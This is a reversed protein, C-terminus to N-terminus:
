RRLNELAPISLNRGKEKTRQFNFLKVSSRPQGLAKPMLRGFQVAPDSERVGSWLNKRAPGLEVEVGFRRELGIYSLPLATTRYTVSRTEIVLMPELIRGTLM